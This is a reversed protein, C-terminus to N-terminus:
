LIPYFGFAGGTISGVIGNAWGAFWGGPNFNAAGLAALLLPLALFVVLLILEMYPAFNRYKIASHSPLLAFLIHYGDLPHLPILNVLAIVINTVAFIIGFQELRIISAPGATSLCEQLALGHSAACGPWTAALSAANPALALGAAVAVGLAFNLAPGALATLITGANPGVRMRQADVEMARGWGLGSLASFSLFVAVLTGTATMQRSPALSLRGRRVVSADGLLVAMGAHAAEHLTIAIIFAVFTEVIVIVNM